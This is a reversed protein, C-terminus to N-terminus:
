DVKVLNLARASGAGANRCGSCLFMQTGDKWWSLLKAPVKMGWLDCITCDHTHDTTNGVECCLRAAIM